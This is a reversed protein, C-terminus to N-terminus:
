EHLRLVPRQRRQRGVLCHVAPKCPPEDTAPKPPPPSSPTPSPSPPPSTPSPSPSPPPPSPSQPPCPTDDGSTPPPPSPLPPSPAPTAMPTPPPSSAEDCGGRDACEPETEDGCLKSRTCWAGAHCARGDPCDASSTCAYCQVSGANVDSWATSCWGIPKAVAPKCPPEDTAPKPPPPSPPPTLQTPPAPNAIPDTAGGGPVGCGTEGAWGSPKIAVDACNWFAEPAQDWSNATIYTWQLVCRSCEIQEPVKLVITYVKDATNLDLRPSAACGPCHGISKSDAFEVVYRDTNNLPHSCPGGDNCCSGHPWLTNPSTATPDFHGGTNKCKYAGRGGQGVMNAYDLIAPFDPTTADIELVHENLLEQTIPMTLDRGGDKPVGLRFEFWGAHYATLRVSVSMTEGSVFTGKAGVPGYKNPAMFGRRTGIDGCLGHSGAFANAGTGGNIGANLNNANQFGPANLGQWETWSAVGPRHQRPVPCLLMGHALARPLKVSLLVACFSKRLM